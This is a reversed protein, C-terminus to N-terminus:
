DYGKAQRKFIFLLVKKNFNSVIITNVLEWGQKGLYNIEGKRESDWDFQSSDLEGLLFSSIETESDIDYDVTTYEFKKM